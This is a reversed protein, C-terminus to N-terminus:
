AGVRRKSGRDFRRAVGEASEPSPTNGVASQERPQAVPDGGPPGSVRRRASEKKHPDSVSRSSRGEDRRWRSPLLHTRWRCSRGTRVCSGIRTWMFQRGASVLACCRASRLRIRVLARQGVVDDRDSRPAPNLDCRSAADDLDGLHRAGAFGHTGLNTAPRTRASTSCGALSLWRSRLGESSPDYCPNEGANSAFEREGVHKTSQPM